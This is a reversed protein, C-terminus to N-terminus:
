NGMVGDVLWFLEWGVLVHKFLGLIGLFGSNVGRVGGHIDERIDRGM